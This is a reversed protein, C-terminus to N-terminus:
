GGAEPACAAGYVFLQLARQLIAIADERVGVRLSPLEESGGAVPERDAEATPVALGGSAAQGAVEGLTEQAPLAPGPFHHAVPVGGEGTDEETRVGGGREVGDAMENAQAITGHGMTIVDVGDSHTRRFKCSDVEVWNEM